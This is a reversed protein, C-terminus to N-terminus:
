HMRGSKKESAKIAKIARELSLVYHKLMAVSSELQGISAEYVRSADFFYQDLDPLDRLKLNAPPGQSIAELGEAGGPLPVIGVTQALTKGDGDLWTALVTDGNRILKIVDRPTKLAGQKLGGKAMDEFNDVQGIAYAKIEDRARDTYQVATILWIAM